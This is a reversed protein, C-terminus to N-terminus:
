QRSQRRRYVVACGMFALAFGLLGATSTADPVEMSISDLLVVPPLGAPGGSALFSLLVDSGDATFTMSEHMWGSFGESAVNITSTSKSESGLSVTLKDTTDGQLGFQQTGAWNFSLTYTNGATLGTLMQTLAASEFASFLAVYNGGTPSGALGNASGTGPGWMKVPNPDANGIAGTTDATGPTYLFNYGVTTWNAAWVNYMLMGSTGPSGLVVGGTEEFDGNQVFNAAAKQELGLALAGCLAIGFFKNSRIKLM